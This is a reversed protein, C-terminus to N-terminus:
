LLDRDPDFGNFALMSPDLGFVQAQQALLSAVEYYAMARGTEFADPKGEAHLLERQARAEVAAERILFGLDRLYDLAAQEQNKNDM